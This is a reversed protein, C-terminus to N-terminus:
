YVAVGTGANIHVTRGNKTYVRVNPGAQDPVVWGMAKLDEELANEAQAPMRIYEVPYEFDAAVPTKVGGYIKVIRNALATYSVKSNLRTQPM